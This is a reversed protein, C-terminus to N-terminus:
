KLKEDGNLEIWVINGFHLLSWVATKKTNGSITIQGFTTLPHFVTGWRQLYLIFNRIQMYQFYQSPFHSTNSILQQITLFRSGSVLRYFLRRLKTEVGLLQLTTGYISFFLKAQDQVMWDEEEHSFTHKHRWYHGRRIIRASTLLIKAMCKFSTLMKGLTPPLLSPPKGSSWLETTSPNRDM